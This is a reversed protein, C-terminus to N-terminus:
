NLLGLSLVREKGNLEFYANFYALADEVSCLNKQVYYWQHVQSEKIVKESEPAYRAFINDFGLYSLVAVRHKGHIVVFRRDGNEKELFCGEVFSHTPFWPTYGYRSMSRLLDTTRKINLEISNNDLPGCLWSTETLPKGGIRMEERSFGGWPNIGVPPAFKVTPYNDEVLHLMNIPRYMEYFKYFVSEKSFVLSQEAAIENLFATVPHWGNQSYSFGFSNICIDLDIDVLEKERNIYLKPIDFAHQYIERKRIWISRLAGLLRDM